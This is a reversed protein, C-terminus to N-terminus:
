EATSLNAAVLLGFDNERKDGDLMTHGHGYSCAFVRNKCKFLVVAASSASQIKGDIEFFDDLKAAWGPVANFTPKHFLACEFAVAKRINVEISKDKATDTLFGALDKVADTALHVSYKLKKKPEQAM